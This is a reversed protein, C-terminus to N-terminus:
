PPDGGINRPMDTRKGWRSVLLFQSAKVHQGLFFEPVPSAPRHGRPQFNASFHAGMTVDDFAATSVRASVAAPINIPFSLVM